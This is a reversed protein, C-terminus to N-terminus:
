NKSKLQIKSALIIFYGIISPTIINIFWLATSATIILLENPIFESFLLLAIGARIAVEIFSIMPISSMLMFSISVPIFLEFYSGNAGCIKLLLIYQSAFVFYRLMSWLITKILVPKPYHVAGLDFRQLMRLSAVKKYAIDIKFLLLTLLLLLVGGAALAIYILDSSEHKLLWLATCVIGTAVTIFLQTSGCVFHTVTIKSRHEPKFYILRGAFEGFRGPTVNGICIGAMVGKIAKLYSIKEIHATIIKWKYSEILWNPIMLFYIFAFLLLNNGLFLTQKLIAIKEPTLQDKLRFWLFVFSALGLLIKFLLVLRKKM